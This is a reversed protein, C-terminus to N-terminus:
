LWVGVGLSDSDDDVDIICGIDHSPPSASNTLATNDDTNSGASQDVSKRPWGGARIRAATDQQQRELSKTPKRGKRNLPM